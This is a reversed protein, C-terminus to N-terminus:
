RDDLTVLDTGSIDIRPQHMAAEVDMGYDTLFSILQFVAPMIRRGGSAGLAFRQGDERLLITPCMNSLPRKGPSISNPRGSRPDFWMMGNNMLIGTRPLMVKSGFLSLLTMTMFLPMIHNSGRGPRGFEIEGPLRGSDFM